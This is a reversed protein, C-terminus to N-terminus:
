IRGMRTQTFWGMRVKFLEDITAFFRMGDVFPVFFLRYLIAYLALRLDEKERALCYVAAVVDLITLETWWLFVLSSLGGGLAMLLFLLIGCFDMTVLAISEFVMNWLMVCAIPDRGPKWLEQRHKL